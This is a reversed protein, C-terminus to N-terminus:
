FTKGWHFVMEQRVKTDICHHVPCNKAAKELKERVSAEFAQPFYVHVLIEGIGGQVAGQNKTVEAKVGALSVGLREAQMGMVSLICAGLSGAFLDTPSFEQGKGGYNQPVDTRAVAKTDLSKITMAYQEGYEVVMKVM